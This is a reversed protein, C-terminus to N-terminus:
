FRLISSCTSISLLITLVIGAILVNINTKNSKEQETWTKSFYITLLIPGITLLIMYIITLISALQPTKM